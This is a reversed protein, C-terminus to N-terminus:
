PSPLELARNDRGANRQNLWREYWDLFDTASSVDPGWHGDSNGILIRGTLLGTVRLICVDTCGMESIHLFLDREHAGPGADGFGRPTGPEGRSNMVPLSCQELAMLGYFPTVSSGAIHTLLQRYADPLATDHKAEFAAIRTETM